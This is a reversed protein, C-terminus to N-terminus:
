VELRKLCDHWNLNRQTCCKPLSFHNEVLLVGEVLFKFLFTSARICRPSPTMQVVATTFFFYCWLSYDCSCNCSLLGFHYWVLITVIWLFAMFDFENILLSLTWIVCEKSWPGRIFCIDKLSVFTLFIFTIFVFMKQIHFIVLVDVKGNILAPLDVVDAFLQLTWRRESLSLSPTFGLIDSTHLM